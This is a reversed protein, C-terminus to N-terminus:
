KWDKMSKVLRQSSEILPNEPKMCHIYTKPVGNGTPENLYLVSNYSRLPTLTVRRM